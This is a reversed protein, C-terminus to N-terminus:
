RRERRSTAYIAVIGLGWLVFAMWWPADAQAWLERVPSGFVLLGAGAVIVAVARETARM